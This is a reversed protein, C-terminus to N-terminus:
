QVKKTIIENNNIKIKLEEEKEPYLLIDFIQFLIKDGDEESMSENFKFKINLEKKQIESPM